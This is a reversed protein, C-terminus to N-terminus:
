YLEILIIKYSLIYNIWYIIDEYSEINKSTLSMEKIEIGMVEM